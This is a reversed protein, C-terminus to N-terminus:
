ALFTGNIYLTIINASFKFNLAFIPFNQQPNLGAFCYKISLIRDVQGFQRWNYEINRLLLIM